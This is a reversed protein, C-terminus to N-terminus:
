ACCAPARVLMSRCKNVASSSEFVILSPVRTSYSARSSRRSVRGRAVSSVDGATEASRHRDRCAPAVAKPQNTDGSRVHNRRSRASRAGHTTRRMPDSTPVDVFSGSPPLGQGGDQRVLGARVGQRARDRAATTLLFFTMAPARPFCASVLRRLVAPFVRTRGGSPPGERGRSPHRGLSCM